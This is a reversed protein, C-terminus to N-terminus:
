IALSMSLSVDPRSPKDLEPGSVDLIRGVSMRAEFGPRQLQLAVEGTSANFSEERGASSPAWGKLVSVVVNSYISDMFPIAYGPSRADFRVWGGEAVDLSQGNFGHMMSPGAIQLEEASVLDDPAFQYRGDVGMTWQDFERNLSASVALKHYRNNESSHTTPTVSERHEVGGLATFRTGAVFGGALERKGACRLGFSSLQYSSDSAWVSDKYSRKKGRAHSFVSDIKIGQWSLFPRSGSLNVGQYESHSDKRLGASDEVGVQESNEVSFKLKSGAVPLSYRFRLSQSEAQERRAVSDRFDLALNHSSWLINSGALNLRGKARENDHNSGGSLTVRPELYNAVSKFLRDSRQDITALPEAVLYPLSGASSSACWILAFLCLPRVISAQDSSDDTIIVKLFERAGPWLEKGFSVIKWM